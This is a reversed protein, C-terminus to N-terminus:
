VGSKLSNKRSNKLWEWNLETGFVADTAMRQVNGNADYSFNENTMFDYDAGTLQGTLDYTYDAQGDDSLIRTINNNADWTLQYDAFASDLATRHTIRTTRNAVDYLWSSNSVTKGAEKYVAEFRQSATNYFM